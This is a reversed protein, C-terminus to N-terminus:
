QPNNEQFIETVMLSTQSSVIVLSVIRHYQARNYGLKQGLIGNANKCKICLDLDSFVTPKLRKGELM